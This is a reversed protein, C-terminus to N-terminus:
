GGGTAQSVHLVALGPQRSMVEVVEYEDIRTALAVADLAVVTDARSRRERVVHDVDGAGVHAGAAPACSAVSPEDDDLVDVPVFDLDDSDSDSM